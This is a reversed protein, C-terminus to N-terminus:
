RQLKLAQNIKRLFETLQWSRSGILDNLQGRLAANQDYMEALRHKLLPMQALEQNAEILAESAERLQQSLKATEREAERLERETEVLRPEVSGNTPRDSAEPEGHIAPERFGNGNHIAGVAQRSNSETTV